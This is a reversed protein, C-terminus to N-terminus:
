IKVFIIAYYKKSNVPDQRISIGFHTFDGIIRKKHRPSNLWAEVAAQSTSYNYAINEDVKEAGLVSMIDESRAVFDDHNVVNNVIMYNVHEESKYSIYNNKELANLGVSVRYENILAMTELESSNYEYNMFNLSSANRDQKESADSSCSNM